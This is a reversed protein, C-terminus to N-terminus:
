TGYRETYSYWRDAVRGSSSLLSTFGSMGSSIGRAQARYGAAETRRAWAENGANKRIVAADADAMSDTEELIDLASGQLQVNGAALRAEQSGRLRAAGRRLKAEAQAGRTLADQAQADALTANNKAVTEEMQANRYAATTNAVLAGTDLTLGLQAVSKPDCM